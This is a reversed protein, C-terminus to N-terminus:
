RKVARFSRLEYPRFVTVASDFYEAGTSRGLLDEEIFNWGERSVGSEVPKSSTSHVRIHFDEGDARVDTIYVGEGPRFAEEALIDGRAEALRCAHLYAADIGDADEAFIDFEFAMDGDLWQPFNTGWMNNFLNFRFEPAHEEYRKRFVHVGNEGISMLPVDYSVVCTLAGGNEAAAFHELAYFGHNANDAIDTKPDIVNGLKNIYYREPMSGFPMCLSGSEIYPAAKKGHLEMRVRVPREGEPVTVSLVIEAADGFARDTTYRFTVTDGKRVCGAFKPACTEHACEPYEPRGNDLVGWDSFRRAYARLYETLDDSGYRDYRYSFLGTEETGRLMTVGRRKDFVEHIQGNDANFSVRYLTNELTYEGCLEEETETSAESPTELGLLKEARACAEAARYVRDSQEKWSEEMRACKPERRFVDFNEYDPTGLWRKTDLGWTHEAFLAMADYATDIEGRVVNRLEPEADAALKSLRILRGRLRRLLATERPYTGAGHIWTDALDSRVVPLSSLDNKTIDNLFDDLTGCVIEAEPACARVKEVMGSVLDATQPGSNDNTNMLAIWTDFPWDAPPTLTTGYGSNYMTLVRKGSPAEWWFIPPVKPPMAFENCGLHLFGVGADALLEVLFRGHGPVDTMKAAKPVPMGFSESLEKAYGLGYVAENMGCADYHSTYPLSHWVLQRRGILDLLAQKREGEGRALMDKVPWSPMTWVYKLAGMDKTVDCTAKVKDLMEGSYYELIERSLQTFGIDFHTKFVLIVKKLPMIADIREYLIILNVNRLTLESLTM